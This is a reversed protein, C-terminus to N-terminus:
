LKVNLNIDEVDILTYTHVDSNVFSWEHPTIHKTFTFWFHTYSFFVRCSMNISMDLGVNTHFKTVKVQFILGLIGFKIPESFSANHAYKIQRVRWLIEFEDSIKPCNIDKGLKLM